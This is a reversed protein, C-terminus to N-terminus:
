TQGCGAGKKGAGDRGEVGPELGGLGSLITYCTANLIFFSVDRELVRSATSARSASLRFPPRLIRWLDLWDRMIADHHWNWNLM